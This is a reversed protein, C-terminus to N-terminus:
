NSIKKLIAGDSIEPHYEYFKDDVIEGIIPEKLLHINKIGLNLDYIAKKIEEADFYHALCIDNDDIKQNPYRVKTQVDSKVGRIMQPNNGGVIVAQLLTAPTTYIDWITADYVSLFLIVCKGPHNIKVQANFIRKTEDLTINKAEIGQQYTSFAYIECDSRIDKLQCQIPKSFETEQTYRRNKLWYNANDLLDVVCSKTRCGRLKFLIYTQYANIMEPMEHRRDNLLKQLKQAKKRLPTEACIVKEVIEEPQNCDFPKPMIEPDIPLVLFSQSHSGIGFHHVHDDINLRMNEPTKQGSGIFVYSPKNENPIEEINKLLLYGNELLQDSNEFFDNYSDRRWLFKNNDLNIVGNKQFLSIDKQTIRRVKGEDILKQWGNKGPPLVVNEQYGFLNTSQYYAEDPQKDGIVGNQLFKIKLPDVGASQLFNKSKEDTMSSRLCNDANKLLEQRYHVVTKTNDPYGRLLQPYDGGVYIAELKTDPTLSINWVQPMSSSLFLYVCQNPRNIYLQEVYTNKESSLLTKLSNQKLSPNNYVYVECNQPIMPLACEPQRSFGRLGSLTQQYVDTMCAETQCNRGKDRVQLIFNKEEAADKQVQFLRQSMDTIQKTLQQRYKKETPDDAPIQNLKEELLSLEKSLNESPIQLRNEIEQIQNNIQKFKSNLCVYADNLYEFNPQNCDVAAYAPYATLLILACLKKM